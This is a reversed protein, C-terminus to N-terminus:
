WRALLDYHHVMVRLRGDDLEAHRRHAYSAATEALEPRQEGAAALWGAFWEFMLEVGDPDLRWQSPRVVTTAGYRAFTDATVGIADPGLLRRGAVERRQHANFAAEIVADLPDVPTLEVRGAVSLTLLAPCRAAACAGVIREVEDVTLLDILASATVLDAGALDAATLLSVDAQRTEVTAGALEIRDLLAADRDYMVWHQDAPLRPALWRGMSGTGCGLDHVVVPSRGALDDRVLDALGTARAAADAPERLALWAPTVRPMALETM